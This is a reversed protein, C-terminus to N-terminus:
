QGGKRNVVEGPNELSNIGDRGAIYRLAGYWAVLQVLDMFPLVIASEAEPQKTGARQISRVFREAARLQEQTVDTGKM